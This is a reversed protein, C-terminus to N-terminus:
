SLVAAEVSYVPPLDGALEQWNEGEDASFFLKGTNTGLYIGAPELSDMALGERYTGMFANEQPLGRSLAEWTSGSDSSRYVSLKGDPPCRFEAGQLPVTYITEPKSPHIALPFGFDSPVGTTIEEWTEAADGSRYIGCHNQQFLRSPDGPAMLLKHVCQGFEPYRDPQFEARVGKNLPLWSEGGDDTRFVGVASIGVFMRQDNGPDLQISHLCLGGAGPQWQERSPHQSLGTVEQWTRGADESRFLAAPAVGAYLVDPADKPGPEIHWLREVTLGSDPSFKPNETAEEWSEGFDKSWVIRSGFWADNATAYIAGNRQDYVAHNVELGRHHMPGSTEWHQRDNSTFVILGKKTGVLVAIKNSM